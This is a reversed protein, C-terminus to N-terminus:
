LIIASITSHLCINTSQAFHCLLSYSCFQHLLVSEIELELMSQKEVVESPFFMGTVILKSCNTSKNQRIAGDVAVQQLYTSKMKKQM